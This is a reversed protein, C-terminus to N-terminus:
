ATLNHTRIQKLYWRMETAIYVLEYVHEGPAMVLIHLGAEYQLRRGTATVAYKQGQWTFRLPTIKGQLDFRAVVEILEM